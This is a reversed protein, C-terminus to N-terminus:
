VADNGGGAGSLLLWWTVKAKKEKVSQNELGAEVLM